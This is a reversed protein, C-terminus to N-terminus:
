FRNGQILISRATIPKLSYTMVVEDRAFAKITDDILCDVRGDFPRWGAAQYFPILVRGCQLLGASDPNEDILTATHKLLRRGIGSGRFDPHVVVTSVGEIICPYAGDIRAVVHVLRLYGVLDFSHWAIVHRDYEGANRFFWDLHSALPFDWHHRKLESIATVLASDMLSTQRSDVRIEINSTIAM